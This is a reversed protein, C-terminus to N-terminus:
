DTRIMKARVIVAVTAAGAAVYLVVVWVTPLAVASWGLLVYGGALGYAISVVKPVPYGRDVLQDYFHSRDGQMMPKGARKRRVMALSMDVVPLAFVMLGALAFKFVATEAFLLILIAANIGLFMSGADGMFIAAPHRNYLLFGFAGGMAALPLVVRQVDHPQWDGALHLYCALGLFGVFSIGLVGACLGDLGDLVNTANCAGMIIFLTLPMSLVLALWRSEPLFTLGLQRAFVLVFDDGLGCVVLLIGLSLTVLLRVVPSVHRVDDLLGVAMTLTAAIGIGIMMTMDMSAQASGTASEDGTAYLWVAVALGAAWGAFIAVGGLYAIPKHHPKLYDDPRDVIKHALAFRRCVPTMIASIGFAAALVPWYAAILEGFTAHNEPM